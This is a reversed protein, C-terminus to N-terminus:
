PTGKPFIHCPDWGLQEPLEDWSEQDNEGDMVLHVDVEEDSHVSAPTAARLFAAKREGEPLAHVRRLEDEPIEHFSDEHMTSVQVTVKGDHM